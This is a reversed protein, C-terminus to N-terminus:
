SCASHVYPFAQTLVLIESAKHNGEGGAEINPLHPAKVKQTPKAQNARQTSGRIIGCAGSAGLAGLFSRPGWHGVILYSHPDFSVKKIIKDM